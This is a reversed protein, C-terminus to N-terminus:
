KEVEHENSKGFGIEYKKIKEHMKAPAMKGMGRTKM